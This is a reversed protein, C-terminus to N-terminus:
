PYNYSDKGTREPNKEICDIRLIDAKQKCVGCPPEHHSQSHKSLENTHQHNAPYDCDLNLLHSPIGITAAANANALTVLRAIYKRPIFRSGETLSRRSCIASKPLTGVSRSCSNDRGNTSLIKPGTAVFTAPKTTDMVGLFTISAALSFSSEM